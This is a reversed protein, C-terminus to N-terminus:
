YEDVDDKSVWIRQRGFHIGDEFFSEINIDKPEECTIEKYIQADIHAHETYSHAKKRRKTEKM